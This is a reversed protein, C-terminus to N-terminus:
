TTGCWLKPLSILQGEPNDRMGLLKLLYKVAINVVCLCDGCLEASTVLMMDHSCDHLAVAAPLWPGLPLVGPVGAIFTCAM